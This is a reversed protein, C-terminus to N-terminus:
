GTSMRGGSSSLRDVNSALFWGADWLAERAAQSFRALAQFVHIQDPWVQLRHSVGARTLADALRQSDTLLCESDGVQILVPPWARLDADLVAVRADDLATAGVYAQLMKCGLKPSLIPDRQLADRQVASAGSLDLCPSFLVAAAPMPLRSRAADNLVSCALHGGASDAALTIRSPDYGRALLHRYAALADDAAAPFPHEPAVRYRLLFVAMGSAESLRRVMGQHSRTSGFVFGGGHLYLVVGRDASAGPATIWTGQLAGDAINQDVHAAWPNRFLGAGDATRRLLALQFGKPEMRDQLLRATRGIAKLLHTRM